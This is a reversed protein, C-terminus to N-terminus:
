QKIVHAQQTQESASGQGETFSAVSVRSIPQTPVPLSDRELRAEHSACPRAAFCLTPSFFMRKWHLFLVTCWVSWPKDFGAVGAEKM